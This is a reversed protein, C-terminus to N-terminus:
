KLTSITGYKDFKFHNNNASQKLSDPIQKYVYSPIFCHHANGHTDILIGNYITNCWEDTNSISTCYFFTLEKNIFDFIHRKQVCPPNQVLDEIISIPPHPAYKRIDGSPCTLTIIKDQVINYLNVSETISLDEVQSTSITFTGFETLIVKM